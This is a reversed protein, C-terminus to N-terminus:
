SSRWCVPGSARRPGLRFPRRRDDAAPLGGLAGVLTVNRMFAIDGAGILIGDLAFLLGSLPLTAIFWPWAVHAQDVM